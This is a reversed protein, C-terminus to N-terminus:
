LIQPNEPCGVIRVESSICGNEGSTLDDIEVSRIGANNVWRRYAVPDPFIGYGNVQGPIRKTIRNDVL